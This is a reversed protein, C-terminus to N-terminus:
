KTFVLFIDLSINKGPSDASVRSSVAQARLSSAIGPPVLLYVRQDPLRPLCQTHVQNSYGHGCHGGLEM